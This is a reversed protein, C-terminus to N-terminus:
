RISPCSSSVPMRACPPFWPGRPSHSASPLLDVASGYACHTGWADIAEPTHELQWCERKASGAAQLCRDHKADAWDIGLFAALTDPSTPTM